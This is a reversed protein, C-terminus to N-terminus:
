TPHDDPPVNTDVLLIDGAEKFPFLATKRMGEWRKAAQETTIRAKSIRDRAAQHDHITTCVLSVASYGDRGARGVEQYFRDLNEPLYTHLITRVNHKDIGVGFASTAIIIDIEDNNWSDILHQRKDANTNGTFTACRRFGEKKLRIEWDEADDPTAVYLILPRPLYQLAELVRQERRPDHQSFRFWYALEARLRNSCIVYYHEDGGFLQQLLDACSRSITASLLLTRLQGQSRELLLKQYAALLQFETRFGAGWTEVLHVEDIVFRRLTKRKAAELCVDYLSSKLLAEPSVYLVPLTGDLIGRRIIAKTEPSTGRTWSYPEYEPAVASPFIQRIRREQDLALSVTPVVVITTGGKITGGASEYWAPLQITLSKGGGTPLAVLLTSGPPAFFCAQVAVKQPLSQYHPFSGNSMAFLLGDGVVSMDSKRPQLDDIEATQTLWDPHWDDATLQLLNSETVRTVRLGANTEDTHITNWLQIPISLRQKYTRIVQRILVAIDSTGAKGESWQQLALSLRLLSNSQALELNTLNKQHTKITHSLAHYDPATATLAQQFLDFLESM